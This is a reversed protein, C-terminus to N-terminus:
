VNYQNKIDQFKENRYKPNSLRSAISKEWEKQYKNQLITFVRGKKRSEANNRHKDVFEFHLGLGFQTRFDEVKEIERQIKLRNLETIKRNMIRRSFLLHNHKFLIRDYQKEMLKLPSNSKDIFGSSTVKRLLNIKDTRTLMNKLYNMKRKEDVPNNNFQFNKFKESLGTKVTRLNQINQDSGYYSKFLRSVRIQPIKVVVNKVENNQPSTNIVSISRRSKIFQLTKLPIELNKLSLSNQFQNTTKYNTIPYKEQLIDEQIKKRIEQCKPTITVRM